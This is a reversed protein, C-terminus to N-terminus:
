HCHIPALLILWSTIYCQGSGRAWYGGSHPKLQSVGEEGLRPQSLAFKPPMGRYGTIGSFHLAISYLSLGSFVRNSLDFKFTLGWDCTERSWCASAGPSKKGLIEWRSQGKLNRFGGRLPIEEVVNGFAFVPAKQCQRGPICALYQQWIETTKLSTPLIAYHKGKGRQDKTSIGAVGTLQCATWQEISMMSFGEWFQSEEVNCSIVDVQDVWSSEVGASILVAYRFFDAVM